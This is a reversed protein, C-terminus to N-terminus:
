SRPSRRRRRRRRSSRRSPLRRGARRGTRRGGARPPGTIVSPTRQMTPSRTRFRPLREAVLCEHEIVEDRWPPVRTRRFSSGQLEDATLLLELEDGGCELVNSCPPATARTRPRARSRCSRAARRRQAPPRDPERDHADDSGLGLAVERVCPQESQHAWQLVVQSLERSAPRRREPRHERASSAPMSANATDAPRRARRAAAASRAAAARAPPRRGTARRGSAHHARSRGGAARRPCRRSRGRQAARRGPRARVRRPSPRPRRAARRRTRPPSGRSRRSRRDVPGGARRDQIRGVAVREGQELERMSEADLLPLATLGERRCEDGACSTSDAKACAAAPSGVDERVARASAARRSSSPMSTNSVAAARSPTESASRSGASTSPIIM